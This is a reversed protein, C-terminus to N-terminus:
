KRAEKRARGRKPREGAPCPPAHDGPEELNKEPSRPSLAAATRHRLYGRALLAAVERTRDAPSMAAPDALDTAADADHM